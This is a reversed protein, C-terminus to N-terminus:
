EIKALIIRKNLLFIPKFEDFYEFIVNYESDAVIYVGRRNIKFFLVWSLGKAETSTQSIWDWFKSNINFLETIELNKHFKCEVVVNNYFDDETFVDGFFRQDNSKNITSFAGSMPVRCWKVGTKSTLLKAIDREFSKGKNISNVM